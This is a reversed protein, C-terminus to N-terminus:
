QDEMTDPTVTLTSGRNTPSQRRTRLSRATYIIGIAALVVGVPWAPTTAVVLVGVVILVLGYAGYRGNDETM